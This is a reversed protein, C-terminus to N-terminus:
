EPLLTPAFSKNTQPVVILYSSGPIISHFELLMLYQM